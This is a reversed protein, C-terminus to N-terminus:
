FNASHSQKLALSAAIVQGFALGGDGPPIRKPISPFLQEEKLRDRLGNYIYENVIAGGSAVVGDIRLGKTSYVFVDGLARGLSYLFSKALTPKDYKLRNEVLWDIVDDYNLRYIGNYVIVKFYDIDMFEGGTAVSELWVAPEGEFTRKIRPELISAVLDILRGTSSAPTFKGRKAITYTAKLEIQDDNRFNVLKVIEDFEYGRTSYYAFLLRLPYTVDRDSTLPLPNLSATRKFGYKETNFVLIEGGWVTGDLGWGLGDIAVGAIIGELENDVAAGLVHAYHHQIEVVQLSRSEAYQIGLSRSYLRPHMDVVVVPKAYKGIHYNSILFDIYKLLDKQALPSELDGIYQTLVVKDDFGVAGTASLDGGFAIFEGGLDRRLTIWAPAYGRSRRILVYSDGTKRIVSDDVRNVIERDHVLFYDVIKSLKVKACYEDICMPDGTVNGSTMILFKDNTNRLLLYHLATYAIFVGEHSLDPSVHRSVPTDPRKPLLLIPAQPSNLLVEDNEDMYVLKRLIVTDLGMIAFPKRPRRKRRRLELVVDDDTALAAIHYGGLGKLAVIHGENILKAAQVIPDECDIQNFDKDFLGLKPGDIPCSIGQAHYRRINDPDTYEELCNNCLKYKSMSTNGRDYPVRYIMSFRPGCWACSNFPYLYRKNFPDLIEALCKSCIAFDPPINSRTLANESSEKIMFETYGRPDELAIYVSEIIVTEPKDQYLTVLFEYVKEPEGEIWIEVESGGINRVYGSLHTRMATRSVFPRFGVGQVLGTIIIYMAIRSSEKISM